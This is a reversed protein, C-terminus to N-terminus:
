SEPVVQLINFAILLLVFSVVAVVPSACLSNACFVEVSFHLRDALFYIYLDLDIKNNM